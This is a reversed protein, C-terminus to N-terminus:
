AGLKQRLYAALVTANNTTEDKAGFLLLVRAADLAELHTIFAPTAPNADLEQTYRQTFEAAKAEDHGFWKRLETSPAIDKAWEDLAANVKSIGRPWVRDVLLRYGTPQTHAYIRVPIFEM